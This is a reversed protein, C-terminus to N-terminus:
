KPGPPTAGAPPMGPRLSPRTPGEPGFYADDYTTTTADQIAHTENQMRESRLTGKIDERFQDLPLNEKSKIKFIFFGSQDTIVASIEGPKLDMAVVQSPALMTRRLKGMDTNPAATKIGSLKFAEDQLKAFDEGAVARTRLKEAEAQMTKESLQVRKEEEEASLKKANAAAPPQQNKPVYIRALDAQEFKSLNSNYYDAIDKDSIQSAKDQIAKNMEQALIQVRMLKMHEEYSPGKDLGEQEAKKAMIVASIYRAAFQRRARPPMTPAVSEVIREFQARTIVTKCDGAAAKDAPPNDCLGAVTIVAADPAVQAPAPAAGVPSASQTAPIAPAAPQQAAPTSPSSAAQSWALASLLLCVLGYRTM